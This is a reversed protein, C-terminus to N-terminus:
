INLFAVCVAEWAKPDLFLTPQHYYNCLVMQFTWQINSISHPQWGGKIADEIFRQTATM